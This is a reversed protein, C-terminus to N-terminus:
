KLKELDSIADDLDDSLLGDPKGSGNVVAVVDSVAASSDDLVPSNGVAPPAAPAPAVRESVRPSCAAVLLVVVLLVSFFRM